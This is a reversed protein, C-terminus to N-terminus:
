KNFVKENMFWLGVAVITWFVIRPKKIKKEETM